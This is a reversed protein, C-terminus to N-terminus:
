PATSEDRLRNWRGGLGPSRRTSPAGDRDQPPRAVESHAHHDQQPRPAEEATNRAGGDGPGVPDAPEWLRNGHHRRSTVPGRQHGLAHRLIHPLARHRGRAHGAGTLSTTGRERRAKERVGAGQRGWAGGWAAGRLPRRAAAGATAPRVCVRVCVRDAGGRPRPGETQCVHQSAWGRGREEPFWQPLM